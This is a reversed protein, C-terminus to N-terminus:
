VINNKHTQLYTRCWLTLRWEETFKLYPAKKDQINLLNSHINVEYTVITQQV